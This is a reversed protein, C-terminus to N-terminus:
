NGKNINKAFERWKEKNATIRQKLLEKRRDFADDTEGKAKEGILNDIDPNDWNINQHKMMMLYIDKDIGNEIVMGDADITNYAAAIDSMEKVEGNIFVKYWCM